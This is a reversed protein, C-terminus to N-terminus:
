EREFEAFKVPDPKVFHIHLEHHTEPLLNVKHTEALAILLAGAKVDGKVAKIALAKLIADLMPLSKAQGNEKLQIRTMLVKRLSQALSIDARPRGRPNGSQGPKFQGSRPPNGYGVVPTTGPPTSAKVPKGDDDTAM